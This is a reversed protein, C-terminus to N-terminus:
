LLHILEAKPQVTVILNRRGGGTVAKWKGISGPRCERIDRQHNECQGTWRFGFRTEYTDLVEGGGLIETKMTYLNPEDVSWLKLNAAEM